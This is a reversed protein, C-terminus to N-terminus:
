DLVWSLIANLKCKWDAKCIVPKISSIAKSLKVIINTVDHSESALNEEKKAPLFQVYTLYGIIANHSVTIHYISGPYSLRRAVPQVNRLDIGASPSTEWVRRYRSVPDWVAGVTCNTGAKKGATPTFSSPRSASM